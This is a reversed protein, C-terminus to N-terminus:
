TYIGQSYLLKFPYQLKNLVPATVHPTQEHWTSELCAPGQVQFWPSVSQQLHIVSFEAHVKCGAIAQSDYSSGASCHMKTKYDIAAQSVLM